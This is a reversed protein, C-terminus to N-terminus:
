GECAHEIEVTPAPLPTGSQLSGLYAAVKGQLRWLTADRINRAELQVVTRRLYDACSGIHGAALSLIEVTTQEPLDAAYAPGSRDAVFAIARLNGGAGRVSVWRPINTPPNASMERRLLRDIAANIDLDPLRYVVGRCSGGRDLALMLGPRERTGRWRTLWLSFRRHWGHVTAPREEVFEFCPNWLLSGYAFVWVDRPRGALLQKRIGVYDRDELNRLGPAPGADEIKRDIRALLDETLAITM